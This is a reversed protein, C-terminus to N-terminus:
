AWRNAPKAGFAMTGVVFLLITLINVYFLEYPTTWQLLSSPLRNIIHTAMLLAHDRFLKPSHSQFLLAQALQFHMYKHEVIDNQQPTHTCSREHLIDHLSLFDQFTNNTFKTGNYSWITLVPKNFHVSVIKTFSAFMAFTQSKHSLFDM